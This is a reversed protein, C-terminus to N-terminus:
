SINTILPSLAYIVSLAKRRVTFINSMNTEIELKALDVAASTDVYIHNKMPILDLITLYNIFTLMYERAIGLNVSFYSKILKRELHRECWSLVLNEQIQYNELFILRNLTM